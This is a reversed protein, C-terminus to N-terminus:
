FDPVSAEKSLGYSSYTQEQTSYECPQKKIFLSFKQGTTISRLRIYPYVLKPINRPFVKLADEYSMEHRRAYRRAKRAQCGEQQVRSYIAFKKKGQLPVPRIQTLHVFDHLHYLIDSLGIDQLAKETKAFVRLTNGLTPKNTESSQEKYGPFAVAVEITGDASKSSVFALHLQEYVTSWLFPLSIEYTPHLTIQQYFNMEM